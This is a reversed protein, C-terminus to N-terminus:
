WSSVFIPANVHYLLLIKFIHGSMALHVQYLMINYLKDTVQPLNTTKESYEEMLLVSRWLIASSNQFTANYLM